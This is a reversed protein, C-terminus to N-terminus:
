IRKAHLKDTNGAIVAFKESSFLMKTVRDYVGSFNENQQLM